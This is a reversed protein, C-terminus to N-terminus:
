GLLGADTVEVGQVDVVLNDILRTAGLFAALAILCRGELRSRPRLDTPDVIEVYDIRMGAGAALHQRMAEVVPEPRREGARIAERALNLAGHLRVAERREAPALYVNRSSLALGDADRVTPAVRLRVPWDLDRVMRQLIVVQQADKQGFVAIDPQVLHLLKAVITAVGQFHGPRSRGCLREGLAGVDIRTTLDAALLDAADPAFVLDCGRGELRALDADLDRPYRDLDERPGFQLPNVFISVVVLDCGPRAHQLLSVHGDHLAGMTPVFGIRAGAQRLADARRQMSAKDRM